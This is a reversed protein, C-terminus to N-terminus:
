KVAGSRKAKRPKAAEFMFFLVSNSVNVQHIRPGPLLGLATGGYERLSFSLGEFFIKM